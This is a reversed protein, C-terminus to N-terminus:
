VQLAGLLGLNSQEKCPDWLITGGDFSGTVVLPCTTHTGPPSVTSEPTHRQRPVFRAAYVVCPSPHLVRVAFGGSRRSQTAASALPSVPSHPVAPSTSPDTSPRDVTKRKKRKDTINEVNWVIASGDGSASVLFHNDKSWDLDHVVSM